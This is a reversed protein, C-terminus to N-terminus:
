EPPCLTITFPHNGAAYSNITAHDTGAFTYPTGATLDDFGGPTSFVRCSANPTFTYGTLSTLCWVTADATYGSGNDSSASFPDGWVISYVDSADAYNVTEAIIDICGGAFACITGDYGSLDPSSSPDLYYSFLDNYGLRSLLTIEDSPLGSTSLYSAYTVQAASPSVASYLPSLLGPSVSDFQAQLGDGRVINNVGYAIAGSALGAAEPLSPLPVSGGTILTTIVETIGSIIISPTWFLGSDTAAGIVESIASLAHILAQVRKCHDSDVPHTTGSTLPIVISPPPCTACPDSQSLSALLQYKMLLLDAEINSLTADIGELTAEISARQSQAENADDNIQSELASFKATLDSM